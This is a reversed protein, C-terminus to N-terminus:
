ELSPQFGAHAVASRVRPRLSEDNGHLRDPGKERSPLLNPHPHFGLCLVADRDWGRGQISQMAFSVLAVILLQLYALSRTRHNWHQLM